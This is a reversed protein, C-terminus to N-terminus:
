RCLPHWPELRWCDPHLQPLPVWGRYTMIGPVGRYVVIPGYMQLHPNSYQYNHYPYRYRGYWNPAPPPSWRHHDYHRHNDWNERAIIGGIISGIVGGIIAGEQPTLQAAAPSPFALGLAMLITLAIKRMSTKGKANDQRISLTTSPM